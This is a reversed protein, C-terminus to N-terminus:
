KEENEEWRSIHIKVKYKLYGKNILKKLELVAGQDSEMENNVMHEFVAKYAENTVDKNIAGPQGNEKVTSAYIKGEEYAVKIKM